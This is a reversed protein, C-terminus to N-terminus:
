GGRATHSAEVRLGGADSIFVDRMRGPRDPGLPCVRYDGFVRRDGAPGVRGAVEPPMLGEGEADGRANLVGLMRRTGVIWIRVSPTGNGVVLRGRVTFCPYNAKRGPLPDAAVPLGCMLALLGIAARRLRVRAAPSM